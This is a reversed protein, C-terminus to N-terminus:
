ISNFIEISNIVKKYLERKKSTAEKVVQSFAARGLAYVKGSTKCNISAARPANYMLALEGFADGNKYTKLYTSV